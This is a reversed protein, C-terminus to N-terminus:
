IFPVPLTANESPNEVSGTPEREAREAPEAPEGFDDCFPFARKQRMPPWDSHRCRWDRVGVNVAEVTLENVRQVVAALVCSQWWFFRVDRSASFLFDM